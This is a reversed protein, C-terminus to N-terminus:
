EGGEAIQVQISSLQNYMQLNECKLILITERLAEVTRETKALQPESTKLLQMIRQVGDEIGENPMLQASAWLEHAFGAIDTSLKM